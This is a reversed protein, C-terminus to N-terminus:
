RPCDDKDLLDALPSVGVPSSVLFMNAIFITVLLFALPIVVWLRQKTVQVFPSPQADPKVHAAPNQTGELM